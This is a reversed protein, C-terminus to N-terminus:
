KKVEAPNGFKQYFEKKISELKATDDVRKKRADEQIKQVQDIGSVIIKWTDELTEVSIPSSSALTATTKAAEVTNQANRMLMENTKKRLETLADAQQTQQKLLIAQAIGQKFIPLTIIFSTNIERIILFNNVEMTKLQPIAQMAVNEATRLDMVRGDLLDRAVTMKQIEFTLEANNTKAFEDKLGNIHEDLERVAQEGAFIYKKMEHFTTVNADFLKALDRNAAKADEEYTKLEAYIKDIDGKVSDYRAFFREIKSKLDNFVKFLGKSERLVAPNLDDFIKHLTQMLTISKTGLLDARTKNALVGDSARSLEEAAEKGFSILKTNDFIDISSVIDDVEKSNVMELEMQRVDEVISYEKPAEILASTTANIPNVSASETATERKSFDLGM